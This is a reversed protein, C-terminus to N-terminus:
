TADVLYKVTGFMDCSAYAVCVYAILLPLAPTSVIFGYNSMICQMCQNICRFYMSSMKTHDSGDDSTVLGM